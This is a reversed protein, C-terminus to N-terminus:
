NEMEDLVRLFEKMAETQGYQYEFADSLFEEFDEQEFVKRKRNWIEIQEEEEMSWIEKYVCYLESESERYLDWFVSQTKRLM